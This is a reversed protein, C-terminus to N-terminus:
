HEDEMARLGRMFADRFVDARTTDGRGTEALVRKQVKPLLKECRTVVSPDVRVTIQVSAKEGKAAM